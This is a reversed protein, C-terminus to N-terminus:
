ERTKIEGLVSVITFNEESERSLNQSLIELLDHGVGEM